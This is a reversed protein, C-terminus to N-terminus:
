NVEPDADSNHTHMRSCTEAHAAMCSACVRLRVEYYYLYLFHADRFIPRDHWRTVPQTNVTDMLARQFLCPVTITTCPHTHTKGLFPPLFATVSCPLNPLYLTMFFHPTILLRTCKQAWFRGSLWCPGHMIFSLREGRIHESVTHFPLKPVYNTSTCLSECLCM